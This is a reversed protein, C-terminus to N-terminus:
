NSNTGDSTTAEAPKEKKKNPSQRYPKDFETLKQLSEYEAAHAEKDKKILSLLYKTTTMKNYRAMRYLYDEYGYVNVQMYKTPAKPRDNTKLNELSKPNFNTKRFQQDTSDLATSETSADPEVTDNEYTDLSTQGFVKLTRKGAM